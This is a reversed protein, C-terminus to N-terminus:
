HIRIGARDSAARMRDAEAGDVPPVEVGQFGVDRALKFRDELSLSGPLMGFEVAKKPGESEEAIASGAPAATLGGIAVAAAASGPFERRDIRDATPRNLPKSM